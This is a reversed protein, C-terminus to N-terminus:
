LEAAAGSGGRTAESEANMSDLRRRADEIEAKSRREQEEEQRKRDQRTVIGCSFAISPPIKAVHSVKESAAFQAKRLQVGEEERGQLIGPGKL